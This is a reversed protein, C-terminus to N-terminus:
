GLPTRVNAASELGPCVTRTGREFPATSTPTKMATISSALLFVNASPNLASGLQHKCRFLPAGAAGVHAAAGLAAAPSGPESELLPVSPLPLGSEKNFRMAFRIPASLIWRGPPRVM